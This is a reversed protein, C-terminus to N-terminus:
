EGNKKKKKIVETARVKNDSPTVLPEKNTAGGQTGSVGMDNAGPDDIAEKVKRFKKFDKKVSYESSLPNPSGGSPMANSAPSANSYEESESYTQNGLGAGGTMGSGNTRTDWESGLGSPDGLRGARLSKDGFKKLKVKKDLGMVTARHPDCLIIQSGMDILNDVFFL